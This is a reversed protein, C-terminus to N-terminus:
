GNGASLCRWCMLREIGERTPFSRAPRREWELQFHKDLIGHLGEMSSAFPPGDEKEEAIFFLGVYLGEPKLRHAIFEVYAERQEPFIACYCTHEWVVDYRRDALCSPDTIDGVEFAPRKAADRERAHSLAYDMAHKSIDLGTTLFGADSLFFVDHGRGCGPVLVEAGEPFCGQEIVEMLAPAPAGKDWPIEHNKYHEDWNM